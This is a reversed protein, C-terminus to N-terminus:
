RFNFSHVKYTGGRKIVRVTYSRTGGNTFTALGGLDWTTTGDLNVRTKFSTFTTSTVTGWPQIQLAAANLQEISMGTSAAAAGTVNSSSLDVAFQNATARAPKSTTYGLYIVGGVVSWGALGILGFVLGLTALTRGGFKPNRTKRLGVIGLIIAALSAIFPICGIISCVLSAIAPANAKRSQPHPATAGPLPQSM